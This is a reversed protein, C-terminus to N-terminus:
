CDIVDNDIIEISLGLEVVVSRRSRLAIARGILVFGLLRSSLWEEWWKATNDLLTWGNLLSGLKSLDSLHGTSDLGKMVRVLWSSWSLCWNLLLLERWRSEHRRWFGVSFLIFAGRINHSIFLLLLRLLTLLLVPVKVERFTTPLAAFALVVVELASFLAVPALLGLTVVILISFWSM